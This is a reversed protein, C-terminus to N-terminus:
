TNGPARRSALEDFPDAATANQSPQQAVAQVGPYQQQSQLSSTSVNVGSYQSPLYQNQNQVSQQQQQQQQQNWGQQLQSLSSSNAMSHMDVQQVPYAIMMSNPHLIINPMSHSQSHSPQMSGVMLSPLPMGSPAHHLAHTMNGEHVPVTCDQHGVSLPDFDITQVPVPATVFSVVSSGSSLTTQGHAVPESTTSMTGDGSVTGRVVRLPDFESSSGSSDGSGLAVPKVNAHGNPAAITPVTQSKFSKASSANGTATVDDSGRRSPSLKHGLPAPAKEARGHAEKPSEALTGHIVRLPDFETVSGLSDGSSLAVPKVSAHHGNPAAITPVTQSKFSNASSAKGTVLKEGSVDDSDRRSPSIKQGVSGPTIEAHGHAANPSAMVSQAKLSSASKSEHPIDGSSSRRINESPAPPISSSSVKRSMAIKSQATSEGAENLRQQLPAKLASTSGEPERLETASYCSAITAESKETETPGGHSKPLRPHEAGSYSKTESTQPTSSKNVATTEPANVIEDISNSRSQPKTSDVWDDLKDEDSEKIRDGEKRELSGKLEKVRKKLSKVKTELAERAAKEELWKREM